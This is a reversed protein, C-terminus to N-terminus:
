KAKMSRMEDNLEIRKPAIQSNTDYLWTGQNDRLVSIRRDVAPPLAVATPQEAYWYAVSSMENALHNRHGHEITMWIHTICGSGQIDALVRTEGAALTWYDDNRGSTDWSSFRGTTHDRLRAVNIFM